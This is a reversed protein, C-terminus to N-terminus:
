YETTWKVSNGLYDDEEREEGAVWLVFLIDVNQEVLSAVTDCGLVEDGGQVTVKGHLLQKVVALRLGLKGAVGLQTESWTNAERRPTEAVHPGQDVADGQRVPLLCDETQTGISGLLLTVVSFSRTKSYRLIEIDLHDNVVVIDGNRLDTLFRSVDAAMGRVIELAVADGLRKFAVAHADNGSLAFVEVREVWSETINDGGVPGSGTDDPTLHSREDLAELAFRCGM